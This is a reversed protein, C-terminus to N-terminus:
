EDTTESVWDHLAYHLLGDSEWKPLQEGVANGSLRYMQNGGDAYNLTAIVCWSRLVYDDDGEKPPEIDIMKQM